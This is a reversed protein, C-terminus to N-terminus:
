KNYFKWSKISDLLGHSFRLYVGYILQTRVILDLNCYQRQFYIVSLATYYLDGCYIIDVCFLTWIVWFWARILILMFCPVCIVSDYFAVNSKATM